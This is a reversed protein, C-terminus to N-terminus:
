IGSPEGIEFLRKNDHDKPYDKTIMVERIQLTINFLCKLHGANRLINIFRRQILITPTHHIMYQENQKYIYIIM